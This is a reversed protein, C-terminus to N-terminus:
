PLTTTTLYVETIFAGYLENTVDTTRTQYTFFNIDDMRTYVLDAYYWGLTGTATATVTHAVDLRTIKVEVNQGYIHLRFANQGSANIKQSFIADTVGPVLTFSGSSPDYENSESWFGTSQNVTQAYLQNNNQNLQKLEDKIRGNRQIRGRDLVNKAITITM